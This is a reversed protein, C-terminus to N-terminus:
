QHSICLNTFQCIVVQDLRISSVGPYSIHTTPVDVEKGIPPRVRVVVRIQGKLDVVANNLLRIQEDKERLEDRKTSLSSQLVAIKEQLEKFMDREAEVAALKIRLDAMEATERPSSSRRAVSSLAPRSVEPRGGTLSVGNRRSASSTTIQLYRPASCSSTGTLRPLSSSSALTTKGTRMHDPLPKTVSCHSNHSASFATRKTAPECKNLQNISRRKLNRAAQVTTSVSLGKAHTPRPVNSHSTGFVKPKPSPRDGEM